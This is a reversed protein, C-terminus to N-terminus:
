LIRRMWQQRHEKECTSRQVAVVAAVVIGSLVQLLKFVANEARYNYGHLPSIVAVSARTLATTGCHSYLMCLAYCASMAACITKM